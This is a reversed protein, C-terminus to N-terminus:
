DIDANTLLDEKHAQRIPLIITFTSGAGSESEVKVTGHHAETLAKVLALGIGTGGIEPNDRNDVRFFRDFVSTLHERAIGMGHDSVRIMVKEDLDGRVRGSLTIKGGDPSYKVANSILNTLIQDLKDPDAEVLPFEVPFDVVFEHDTQNMQQAAVVKSALAAVDVISWYMQPARGQEIRSIDLLDKILRTLRDCETDIIEYFEQRTPEDYYGEQDSRLTSIFGKISTLPTRLEHSVTSIFATKMREVSRIETIDNFIAVVGAPEGEDDRVPACQIQYIREKANKSKDQKPAQITLESQVENSGAALAKELTTRVHLNPISRKYSLGIVPTNEGIGLIARASPNIQLIRNNLGVMLLGAYLSDITHTLERNEQVVERYTEAKAFVGTAGAAFSRLLNLDEEIFNNWNQKNFVHLVGVTTTEYVRNNDDRQEFILPVSMSNYIDFRALNEIIGPQEGAVDNMIMPTRTRFVRSSVGDGKVPFELQDLEEPTFGIAPHTAYLTDAASDHLLFVCKQAQLMRCIRDVLRMLTAELDTPPPPAASVSDALTSAVIGTNETVPIEPETIQAEDDNQNDSTMFVPAM